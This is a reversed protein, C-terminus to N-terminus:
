QRKTCKRKIDARTKKLMDERWEASVWCGVASGEDSCWFETEGRAVTRVHHDLAPRGLMGQVGLQEYHDGIKGAQFNSLRLQDLWCKVPELTALMVAAMNPYCKDANAYRKLVLVAKDRQGM